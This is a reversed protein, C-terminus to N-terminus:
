SDREVVFIMHLSGRMYKYYLFSIQSPILIDPWNIMGRKTARDKTLSPNKLVEVARWPHVIDKCKPRTIRKFHDLDHTSFGSSQTKRKGHKNM